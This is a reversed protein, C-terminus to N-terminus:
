PLSALSTPPDYPLGYLDACTRWLLRSRESASIDVMQQLAIDVDIPWNSISHPFDSCWMLNDVGILHRSDVAMQDIIFTVKSNRHFYESPLLELDLGLSPGHRRYSRDFQELYYPLWGGNVEAGVFMLSPFRDFVGTLILNELVRDYSGRAMSAGVSTDGKAFLQGANPPFTFTTHLSIPVGLDVATQWFRDDVASPSDPSGSPYSELAVTRLRLETTCRRLESVADEIGTNPILGVGILRDPSVASFEAIWDNYARFCALRLEPDQTAKVGAWVTPSAYLVEADVSDEDQERLRAAPDFSGALIDDFRVGRGEGDRYELFKDKYNSRDFRKQARFNVATLGLPMPDPVDEIVWAQGGNPLDICHPSRDRLHAPLRTVFLDPPENVHSDASVASLRM